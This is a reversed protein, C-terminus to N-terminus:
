GVASLRDRCARPQWRCQRLLHHRSM